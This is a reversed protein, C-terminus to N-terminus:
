EVTVPHPLPLNFLYGKENFPIEGPQTNGAEDTARTLIAHEGPTAQWEFEFRAWAYRLRPDLVAAESWNKGGDDSWEVRAIPAHPSHAYGRIRRRGASLEAPWPLALASKISQLTAVKGKAEGEPPYDEGILVYSTTNNRTWFKKTSVVIRGLWKISTSGVWGPVVARVPFGHDPPLVAGNMRYALVTDPDLAKGLPVSRRFGAEPSDTDLGIFQVEKADYESRVGALALVEAVPVGTWVAMSVGGTGWQTGRAPRGMVSGFFARQNGGCEVYSYVTRSPLDLLQEYTLVVPREVGDGSIELRYSDRDVAISASNNRVFFLENPTLFGGLKELRTELNKVGHRIFPAPDKFWPSADQAIAAQSPPAIKGPSLEGAAAGRAAFFSAIGTPLWWLFRRRAIGPKRPSRQSPSRRQSM